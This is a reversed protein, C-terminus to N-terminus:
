KGIRTYAFYKKKLFISRKWSVCFLVGFVTTSNRKKKNVQHGGLDKVRCGLTATAGLPVRTLSGNLSPSSLEFSPSPPSPPAPATSPGSFQPSILLILYNSNFCLSITFVEDDDLYFETTSPPTSYELWFNRRNYSFSPFLVSGGGGGGGNGGGGNIVGQPLCQQPPATSFLILKITKAPYYYASVRIVYSYDSKKGM